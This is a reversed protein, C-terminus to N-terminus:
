RAPRRTRAAEALFDAVRDNRAAYRAWGEATANWRYDRTTLDIGHDILFQMAEYNEHMGALEHLISAPEHSSWTTNIDAGRELLFEAIDFHGNIVHETCM